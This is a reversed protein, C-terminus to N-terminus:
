NKKQKFATILANATEKVILDVSYLDEYFYQEFGKEGLIHAVLASADIVIM